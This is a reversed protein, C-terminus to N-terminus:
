YFNDLSNAKMEKSFVCPCENIPQSDTPLICKLALQDPHFVNSNFALSNIALHAGDNFFHSTFSRLISTVMYIPRHRIYM